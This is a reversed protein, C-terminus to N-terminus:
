EMMPVVEDSVLLPEIVSVSPLEEEKMSTVRYKITTMDGHGLQHVAGVAV